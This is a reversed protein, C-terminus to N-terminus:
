FKKLDSTNDIIEPENEKIKGQEINECSETTKGDNLLM